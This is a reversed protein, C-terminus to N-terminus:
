GGPDQGSTNNLATGLVPVTTALAIASHLSAFKSPKHTETTNKKEKQLSMKM